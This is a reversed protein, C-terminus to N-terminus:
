VTLIERLVREFNGGIFGRIDHDNFGRRNMAEVLTYLRHIHCLEPLDLKRQEGPNRLYSPLPIQNEAPISDFGEPPTELGLGVCEPGALDCVYDIHNIYHDLTTPEDPTLLMRLPMVGMVGGAKALAKIVDDSVNRPNPCMDPGTEAARAFIFGRYSDVCPIQTLAHAERDFSPGYEEAMPVSLLRGDLGYNWSHYPCVFRQVRGRANGCVHASRHTCRNVLAKIAGNGARVIIVDRRGLRTTFYDGTEPIQCEHGAYLWMRGFLRDMELNFIEPDTYASQDVFTHGILKGVRGSVTGTINSM